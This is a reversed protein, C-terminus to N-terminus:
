CGVTLLVRSGALSQTRRFSEQETLESTAVKLIRARMKHFLDRALKFDSRSGISARLALRLTACIRARLALSRINGLIEADRAQAGPEYQFAERNWISDPFGRFYGRARAEPM